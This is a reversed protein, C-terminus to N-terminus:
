SKTDLSQSPPSKKKNWAYVAAAVIAVTAIALIVTVPLAVALGIVWSDPGSSTDISLPAQDNSGPGISVSLSLSIRTPHMIYCLSIRYTLLM